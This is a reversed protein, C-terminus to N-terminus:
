MHNSTQKIIEENNKNVEKIQLAIERNAQMLELLKQHKMIMDDLQNIQSEEIDEVINVSTEPEEQPTPEVINVNAEPAEQSAPEVINVNTEPEGQPIPEVVNFGNEPEEPSTLETVPAVNQHNMVNEQVIGYVMQTIKDIIIKVEPNFDELNLKPMDYQGEVYRTDIVSDRNTAAELLNKIETYAAGNQYNGADIGYHLMIDKSVISSDIRARGWHNTVALLNKVYNSINEKSAYALMQEDTGLSNPNGDKSDSILSNSFLKNVIFEQLSTKIIEVGAKVWDINPDFTQAFSRPNLRTTLNESNRKQIEMINKKLEAVEPAQALGLTELLSQIDQWLEDSSVRRYNKDNTSPLIADIQQMVEIFNYNDM